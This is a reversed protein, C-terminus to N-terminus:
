WFLWSNIQEPSVWGVMVAPLALTARMLFGPVSPSLLLGITGLIIIRDLM